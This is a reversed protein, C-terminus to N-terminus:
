IEAAKPSDQCKRVHRLLNDKRSFRQICHPCEFPKANPQHAITSHRRLDKPYRFSQQCVQCTHRKSILPDHIGEHHKLSAMLTFKKGCLECSHPTASLVFDTNGLSIPHGFNAESRPYFTGQEPESPSLRLVDHAGHDGRTEPVHGDSSSAMEASVSQPIRRSEMLQSFPDDSIYSDPPFVESAVEPAHGEMSSSEKFVTYWWPSNRVEVGRPLSNSDISVGAGVTLDARLPSMPVTPHSDRFEHQDLARNWPTDDYFDFLGSQGTIWTGSADATKPDPLLRLSNYGFTTDIAESLFDQFLPIDPERSTVDSTRDTTAPLSTVHHLDGDNMIDLEPSVPGECTQGPSTSRDAQHESTYLTPTSYSDHVAVHQTVLSIDPDNRSSLSAKDGSV